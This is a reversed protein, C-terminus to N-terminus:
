ASGQLDYGTPCTTQNTGVLYNHYSCLGVTFRGHYSCPVLVASRCAKGLVLGIVKGISKLSQQEDFHLSQNSAISLLTISSM